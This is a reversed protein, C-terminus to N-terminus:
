NTAARPGHETEWVHGGSRHVAQPNRLGRCVDARGTATDIVLEPRYCNGTELPDLPWSETGFLHGGFVVMVHTADLGAIRGGGENTMFPSPHPAAELLPQCELLTKWESNGINSLADFRIVSLRVSKANREAHWYNHTVLLEYGTTTRRAFADMVRFHTRSDWHDYPKGSLNARYPEIEM